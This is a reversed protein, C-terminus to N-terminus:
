GRRALFTYVCGYRQVDPNRDPRRTPITRAGVSIGAPHWKDLVDRLNPTGFRALDAAATLSGAFVDIDVDIADTLSDGQWTRHRPTATIEQVQVFPLLGPREAPEDFRDPLDTGAPALNATLHAVLLALVDPYPM